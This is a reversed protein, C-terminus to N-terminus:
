IVLVLKGRTGMQFAAFAAQVQDFPYTRQVEIRLTSAAVQGALSALKGSTPSGMVNTARIGRGALAEVDAAGMTTAIRGGDRVVMSMATFADYRDVLDILVDVGNPYRSRVVGAVDSKSYDITDAAGLSRVFAEDDGAKATAVVVAGRQAALQVAISGVGGTAGVVLLVTGAGVEASDLADLAAAGALPIAAATAFSLGAPKRAFPLDAGGAILEAYTGTHLSPGRPSSGSSRTASPSM